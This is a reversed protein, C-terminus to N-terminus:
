PIPIPLHPEMRDLDRPSLINNYLASKPNDNNEFEYYM